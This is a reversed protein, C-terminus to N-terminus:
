ETAEQSRLYEGIHSCPGTVTYGGVADTMRTIYVETGKARVFGFVQQDANYVVKIIPQSVKGKYFKIPQVYMVAHQPDAGLDTDSVVRGLAIIEYSALEQEAAEVSYPACSLAFAPVSTALYMVTALIFLFSRM